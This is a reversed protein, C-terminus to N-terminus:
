GNTDGLKLEKLFERPNKVDLRMTGTNIDEAIVCHKKFADLVKQKDLCCEKILDEHFLRKDSFGGCKMYRGDENLLSPFDEEFSM